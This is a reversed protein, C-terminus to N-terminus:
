KNLSIIYAIVNAIDQPQLMKQDGFAPMSQAPKADSSAAEPTSGHEIFLDINTAFTKYDASKLTSDIPNLEPITGDKSGANAVGGKGQDGHCPVCTTKYTDAGKVADGQLSIAQGPGGPNSPKAIDSEESTNAAPKPACATLALALVVFVVLSILLSKKM